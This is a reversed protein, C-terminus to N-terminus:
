RRSSSARRWCRAKAQPYPTGTDPFRVKGQTLLAILLLALHM